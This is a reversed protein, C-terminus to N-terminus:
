SFLQTNTQSSAELGTEHHKENWLRYFGVLADHFGWLSHFIPCFINLSHIRYIYKVISTSFSDGASIFCFGSFTPDDNNEIYKPLQFRAKVKSLRHIM